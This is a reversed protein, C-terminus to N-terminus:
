LQSREKLFQSDLLGVAIDRFSLDSDFEALKERSFQGHGVAMNLAVPICDRPGVNAMEYMPCEIVGNRRLYVLGGPKISVLDVTLQFLLAAPLL